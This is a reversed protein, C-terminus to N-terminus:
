NGINKLNLYSVNRFHRVVGVVYLVGIFVVVVVVLVAVDDQGLVDELLYLSTGSLECRLCVVRRFPISITPRGTTEPIAANRLGGGLVM